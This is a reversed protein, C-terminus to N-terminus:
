SKETGARISSAAPGSTGAPSSDASPCDPADAGRASSHETKTRSSRSEDLLSVIAAAAVEAGNLELRESPPAQALLEQLRDAWRGSFLADQDIHASRLYRPMERVLVDYERFHGRSTYMMPVNAAVCESIIGYGPKTVVVDVAAVLDEYRYGTAVFASEPISVVGEPVAGPRSSRDTTVVTWGQSVVDLRSLDLDPLGYGGFSLLLAPRGTPIELGARTEAGARTHRRAVLPIRRSTPFIEFGGSFPLELALTARQYAYRLRPVLWPAAATMGPHTEFIWDWTFNGIGVSPVALRQAVEFALPPMDAVVLSVDDRELGRVEAAVRNDLSEYFAIADRVTAEDDQTISSPQVIAADCHGPRLEYKVDLRRELLWPSVATRLIIRLEPRAAVLAHIVEIQRSAHGFGHGSIFFVVTLAGVTDSGKSGTHDPGHNVLAIEEGLLGLHPLVGQLARLATMPVVILDLPHPASFLRLQRPAAVRAVLGHVVFQAVM